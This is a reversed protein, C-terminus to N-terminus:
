PGTANDAGAVSAAVQLAPDFAIDGDIYVVGAGFLNMGVPLHTRCRLEVTVAPAATAFLLLL